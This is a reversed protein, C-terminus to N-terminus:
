PFCTGLRRHEGSRELIAAAGIDMPDSAGLDRARDLGRRTMRSAAPTVPARPLPPVGIATM